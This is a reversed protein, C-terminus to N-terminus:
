LKLLRARLVGRGWKDPLSDYFIGHLRDFAAENHSQLQDNLPLKLPSLEIGSALFGRDYQFYINGDRAGDDLAGVLQGHYKVQVRM